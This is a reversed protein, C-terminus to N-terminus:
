DTQQVAMDTQGTLMISKWYSEAFSHTHQSNIQIRLGQISEPAEGFLHTYDQILNRRETIWKGLAQTGSQIVLALIKRFPPAPANGSIGRPVTTDWIYSLFHSSSFAVILQAAQDDTHHARFDGGTPLHTVKWQWVLFPKDRLAIHIKKQLAFSAAESRLQLAQSQAESVLQLQADGKNVLLEWGPPVTNQAKSFDVLVLEQGWSLRLFSCWAIMLVISFIDWLRIRM